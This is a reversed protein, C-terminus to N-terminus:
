FVKLNNQLTQNYFSINVVMPEGSFSKKSGIVNYTEVLSLLLQENDNSFNTVRKSNLKVNKM